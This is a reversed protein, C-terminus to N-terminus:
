AWVIVQVSVLVRRAVTVSVLIDFPPAPPKVKLPSLPNPTASVIVVTVDPVPTDPMEWASVVGAVAVVIVSDM